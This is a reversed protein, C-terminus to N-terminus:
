RALKHRNRRLILGLGRYLGASLFGGAGAYILQSVFIGTLAIDRDVAAVKESLAPRVGCLELPIAVIVAVPLAYLFLAGFLKLLQPLCIWLWNIVVGPNLTHEVSFVGVAMTYYAPTWLLALLLVPILFPIAPNRKDVTGINFMVAFTPLWALLFVALNCVVNTFFGTAACERGTAARSCILVFRRFFWGGSLLGFALLFFLAVERNQPDSAGLACFFLLLTWLVAGVALRAGEKVVKEKWPMVLLEGFGVGKRKEAKRHPAPETDDVSNPPADDEPAEPSESHVLRSPVTFSRGCSPCKARKGALGNRVRLHKGCLCTTQIAM